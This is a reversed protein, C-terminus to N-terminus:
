RIQRRTMAGALLLILFLATEVPSIVGGGSSGGSSGSSTGTSSDPSSGTSNDPDTDVSAIVSNRNDETTVIFDTSYAGVSVSAISTDNPQGSSQVALQVSDGNGVTTATAALDGGNLSYFGNSVTLISDGILDRITITNSLVLSSATASNEPSFTFPQPTDNSLAATITFPTEGDTPRHVAREVAITHTGPQVLSAVRFNLFDGSDDDLAIVGLQPDLLYGFIDNDGTSEIQLLGAQPVDISFYRTDRFGFLSADTSEQLPLPVSQNTVLTKAPDNEPDFNGNQLMATASALNLIGGGCYVFDCSTGSAYPTASEQLVARVQSPSLDPNISHLLSIAGSVLAASFSTGTELRYNNGDPNHGDLGSNSAVVIDQGHTTIAVKIGYNSFGNNISGTDTSSSVSIIDACNAPSSRLANSSENGAALVVAVNLQALEDIVDQWARTCETAGGLSLNVVNAPTPNDTVGTVSLGASWRVADIIDADTGGGIGLARAHLLRANWDIGAIGQADNSNGAAASAVSTGHWSSPSGFFPDGPDFPDDDRGDGDNASSFDRPGDASIFDYGLGTVSRNALEPHDPLVGTDVIAIVSSSSGTTIDWAGPAQLSFAGEYLYSQDGPPLNGEYLPDNPVLLPYRRYEISVHDIDPDQSLDHAQENLLTMATAPDDFLQGGSVPDQDMSVLEMHRSLARKFNLKREHRWDSRRFLEDTGKINGPVDPAHYKVILRGTPVAKDENAGAIVSTGMVLLLAQLLTLTASLLRSNISIQSTGIQCTNTFNHITMGTNSRM